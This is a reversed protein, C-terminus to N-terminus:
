VTQLLLAARDSPLNPSTNPPHSSLTKLFVRDVPSSELIDFQTLLSQLPMASAPLHPVLPPPPAPHPLLSADPPTHLPHLVFHPAAYATLSSNARTCPAPISQSTLPM